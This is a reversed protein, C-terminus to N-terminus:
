PRAINYDENYVGVLECVPNEYDFSYMNPKLLYEPIDQRHTYSYINLETTFTSRNWKLAVMYTSNQNLDQQLNNFILSYGSETNTLGVSVEGFKLINKNIDILGM